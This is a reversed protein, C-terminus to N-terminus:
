ADKTGAGGEAAAVARRLAEEDIAKLLSTRPKGAGAELARLEALEEDALADFGALITAVSGALILALESVPDEEAPPAPQRYDPHLREDIERTDGPPIMVGGVHVFKATTNTYPIKM